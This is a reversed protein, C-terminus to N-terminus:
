VDDTGGPGGCMAGPAWRRRRSGNGSAAKRNVELLGEPPDIVITQETLDVTVCIEEALPVDIEAGEVTAVLRQAGAPGEVATVVGVVDGGVTRVTCGILDHAYWTGDPLSRLSTEPVRLQAGRLTEADSLTQIGEFALVPRGGHFWLGQIRLPRPAPSGELFLTGGPAFRDEPFDTEPKVVVEGQRGHTRAVVGVLAMEDWGATEM